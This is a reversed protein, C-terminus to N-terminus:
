YLSLTSLFKTDDSLIQLVVAGARGFSWSGLWIRFASLHNKLKTDKIWIYGEVRKAEPTLLLM